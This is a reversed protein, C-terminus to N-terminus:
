FDRIYKGIYGYFALIDETFHHYVPSTGYKLNNFAEPKSFVFLVSQIGFCKTLFIRNEPKMQETLSIM